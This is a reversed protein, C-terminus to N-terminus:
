FFFGKNNVVVAAAAAAAVAAAACCSVLCMHIVNGALPPSVIQTRSAPAVCVCELKGYLLYTKKKKAAAM